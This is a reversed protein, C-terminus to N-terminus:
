DSDPLRERVKEQLRYARARFTNLKAMVERTKNWNIGLRNGEEIMEEDTKKHKKEKEKESEFLIDKEVQKSLESAFKKRKKEYEEAWKSKHLIIRKVVKNRGLEDKIRPFPYTIFGNISNVHIRKFKVINTQEKRNLGIPELVSHGLRRVSVDVFDLTPCTIALFVNATRWTTLVHTILKNQVKM